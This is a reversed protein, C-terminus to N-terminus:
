VLVNAFIGVIGVVVGILGVGTVPRAFREFREINALGFWGFLALALGFEAIVTAWYRWDDPEFVAVRMRYLRYGPVPRFAKGALLCLMGALAFLGASVFGIGITQHYDDKSGYAM